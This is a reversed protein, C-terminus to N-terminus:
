LRHRGRPARPRRRGQHPIRDHRAQRHDAQLRAAGRRRASALTDDDLKHGILAKAAEDVILQTPAVAGLVVRADTCIGGGDLTVNVACGVVAIDMETRPIFRLYADSQHPKPKPM